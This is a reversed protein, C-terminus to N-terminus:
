SKTNDFFGGIETDCFFLLFRCFINCLYVFVGIFLGVLFFFIRNLLFVTYKKHIEMSEADNQRYDLYKQLSPINGDM